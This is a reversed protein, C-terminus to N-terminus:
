DMPEFVELVGAYKVARNPRTQFRQRYIRLISGYQVRQVRVLDYQPWAFGM